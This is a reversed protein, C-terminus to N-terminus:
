FLTQQIELQQVKAPHLSYFEVTVGSYPNKAHYAVFIREDILKLNSRTRSAHNIPFHRIKAVELMIEDLGMPRNFAAMVKLVSQKESEYLTVNGAHAELQTHTARHKM